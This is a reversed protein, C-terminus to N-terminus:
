GLAFAGVTHRTLLCMAGWKQKLADDNETFYNDVKHNEDSAAADLDFSYKENLNKFLSAPTEWDDKNSTLAAGSPNFFNTM